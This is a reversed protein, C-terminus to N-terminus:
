KKKDKSKLILDYSHYMLSATIIVSGIFILFVLYDAPVISTKGCSRVSLGSSNVSCPAFSAIDQYFFDGTMFVLFFSGLTLLIIVVNYISLRIKNTKRTNM